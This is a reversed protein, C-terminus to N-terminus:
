NGQPCFVRRFAMLQFHIRYLWRFGANVGADVCLSQANPRTNLAITSNRIPFPFCFTYNIAQALFGDPRSRFVFSPRDKSCVFFTPLWIAVRVKRLNSRSDVWSPLRPHHEVLQKERRTLRRLGWMGKPVEQSHSLLFKTYGVQPRPEPSLGKGDGALDPKLGQGLEHM